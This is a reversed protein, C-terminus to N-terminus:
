YKCCCCCHTGQPLWLVGVVIRLDAAAYAFLQPPRLGISSVCDSHLKLYSCPWQGTEPHCRGQCLECHLRGEEDDAAGGAQSGALADSPLTSIVSMMSKVGFMACVKTCFCGVDSSLSMRKNHMSWKDCSCCCNQAPSLDLLVETICFKDTAYVRLVHLTQAYRMGGHLRWDEWPQDIGHGGEGGGRYVTQHHTYPASHTPNLIYGILHHTKPTLSSHLSVIDATQLLAELDARSSKSNLGIVQM